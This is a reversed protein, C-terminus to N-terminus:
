SSADDVYPHDIWVTAVNSTDATLTLARLIKDGAVVLDDARGATGDIYLAANAAVTDTSALCGELARVQIFGFTTTANLAARMIGVRGIANTALLTTVGASTFTVWVNAAGSAVGQVYVFADKGLNVYTGLTFRKVTDVQDIGDLSLVEGKTAM